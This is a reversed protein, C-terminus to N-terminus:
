KEKTICDRRPAFSRFHNIYLSFPAQNGASATTYTAQGGDLHSFQTCIDDQLAAVLGMGLRHQGFDLLKTHFATGHAAVQFILGFDVGGKSFNVAPAHLHVQHEVVSTEHAVVKGVVEGVGHVIEVM